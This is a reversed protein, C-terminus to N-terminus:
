KEKGSIHKDIVDLCKGSFNWNAKGYIQIEAQQITKIEAKIDEIVKRSIFEDASEMEIQYMEYVKISNIVINLAKLYKPNYQYISDDIAKIEELIDIAEKVDMMDIAEKVEMMDIAEKVEM